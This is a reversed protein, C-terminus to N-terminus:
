AIDLKTMVSDAFFHFKKTHVSKYSYASFITLRYLVKLMFVYYLSDNKLTMCFQKM